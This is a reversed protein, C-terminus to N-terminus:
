AKSNTTKSPPNTAPEKIWKRLSDAFLKGLEGEYEICNAFEKFYIYKFGDVKDKKCPRPQIYVVDIKPCPKRICIGEILEHVGQSHAAYMTDELDSPLGLVGIESLAHAMHFYKQRSHKDNRSKSMEKFDGMIRCMCKDIANTLYDDQDPRRSRMDTKLEILFASNGDDSLAFFDVKDSLNYDKEKDESEQKLPFQPIVQPKVKVGVCKSKELVTPLFLAFLVESRPELPFAPFHRWEDLRQFFHKMTPHTPM